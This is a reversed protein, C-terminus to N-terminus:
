NDEVKSHSKGKYFGDTQPNGWQVGGTIFKKIFGM